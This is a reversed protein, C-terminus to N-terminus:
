SREALCFASLGAVRNFTLLSLEAKCIMVLVGNVLRSHRRLQSRTPERGPPRLWKRSLRTAAALPFVLGFYYAGQRVRLGARRAVAELENLTYRRKHGLFEDHESWLVRFAPVSLLFRTGRPVRDVYHALLGADDDVHELVDILLVVDASVTEVSRRYHVM